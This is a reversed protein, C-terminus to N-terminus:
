SGSKKRFYNWASGVVLAGVGAGIGVLVIANLHDHIVAVHGFFYGAVPLTIAWIAAGAVSFLQFRGFTMESVGAVFPAFTRVV